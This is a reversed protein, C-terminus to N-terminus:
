IEPVVKRGLRTGVSNRMRGHDPIIIKQAVLWVTMKHSQKRREQTPARVKKVERERSKILTWGRAMKKSFIHSRATVETFRQM